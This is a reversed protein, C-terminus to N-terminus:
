KIKTPLDLDPRLAVAKRLYVHRIEAHSKESNAHVLARVTKPLAGAVSIEVACMLPINVLGFLRASAAPFGCVLDPTSTFIISILDAVEIENNALITEILECVATNMEDMSDAELTTAGRIARVNM